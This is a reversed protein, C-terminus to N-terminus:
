RGATAEDLSAVIQEAGLEREFGSRRILGMPQENVKALVLAIGRYESPAGLVQWFDVVARRPSVNRFFSKM